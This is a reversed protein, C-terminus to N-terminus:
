RDIGKWGEHFDAAAHHREMASSIQMAADTRLKELRKQTGKV